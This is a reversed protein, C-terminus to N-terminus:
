HNPIVTNQTTNPMSLDRVVVFQYDVPGFRFINLNKELISVCLNFQSSTKKARFHFVPRWNSVMYQIEVNQLEISEPDTLNHFYFLDTAGFSTVLESKFPFFPLANPLSQIRLEEKGIWESGYKHTNEPLDLVPGALSFTENVQLYMPKDLFIPEERNFSWLVKRYMSAQTMELTEWLRYSKIFRLELDLYRPSDTSANMLTLESLYRNKSLPMHQFGLAHGIEHLILSRGDVLTKGQIQQVYKGSSDYHIQVDPHITVVPLSSQDRQYYIAYIQNLWFNKNHTLLTKFRSYPFESWRGKQFFIDCGKLNSEDVVTSESIQLFDSGPGVLSLRFKDLAETLEPSSLNASQSYCISLRKFLRVKGDKFYSKALRPWVKDHIDIWQAQVPVSYISPLDKNSIDLKKVLSDETGWLSGETGWLSGEQFVISHEFDIIAAGASLSCLLIIKLIRM